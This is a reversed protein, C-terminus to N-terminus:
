ISMLSWKAKSKQVKIKFDPELHVLSDYNELNEVGIRWDGDWEHYKLMKGNTRSKYHFGYHMDFQTSSLELRGGFLKFHKGFTARLYKQAALSQLSNKFIRNYHVHETLWNWHARFLSGLRLILYINKIIKIIKPIINQLLNMCPPLLTFTPNIVEQQVKDCQIGLYWIRVIATVLYMAICVTHLKPSEIACVIFWLYYIGTLATM